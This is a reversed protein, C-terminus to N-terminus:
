DSHVRSQRFTFWGCGIASEIQTTRSHSLIWPSLAALLLRLFNIYPFFFFFFLVYYFHHYKRSHSFNSTNNGNILPKSDTSFLSCACVSSFCLSLSMWVGHKLIIQCIRLFIFQIKNNIFTHTQTNHEIEHGKCVCWIKTMPWRTKNNNNNACLSLCKTHFLPTCASHIRGSRSRTCIAYVIQFLFPTEKVYLHDYM